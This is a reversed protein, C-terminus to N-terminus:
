VVWLWWRAGGGRCPPVRSAKGGPWEVRLELWVGAENAVSRVCSLRTRKGGAM